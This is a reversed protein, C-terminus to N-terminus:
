NVRWLISNNQAFPTGFGAALVLMRLQSQGGILARQMRQRKGRRRDVWMGTAFKHSVIAACHAMQPSSMSTSILVVKRM